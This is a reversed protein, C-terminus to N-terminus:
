AAKRRAPASGFLHRADRALWPLAMEERGEHSIIEVKRMYAESHPPLTRILRQLARENANGFREECEDGLDIISQLFEDPEQKERRVRFMETDAIGKLKLIFDLDDLTTEYAHLRAEWEIQLLEDAALMAQVAHGDMGVYPAGGFARQQKACLAGFGEEALTRDIWRDSDLRPILLLLRAVVGPITSAFDGEIRTEAEEQQADALGIEEASRPSVEEVDDSAYGAARLERVTEYAELILSDPSGEDFAPVRLAPVLAPINAPANM